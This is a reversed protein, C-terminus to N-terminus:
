LVPGPLGPQPHQPHVSNSRQLATMISDVDEKTVVYGDGKAAILEALRAKLADAFSRYGSALRIQVTHPMAALAHLDADAAIGAEQVLNDVEAAVASASHVASADDDEDAGEVRWDLVGAHPGDLQALDLLQSDPLFAVRSTEETFGHLPDYLLVFVYRHAHMARAAGVTERTCDQVVAGWWQDVPTTGESGDAGDFTLRWLVQIRTGLAPAHSRGDAVSAAPSPIM